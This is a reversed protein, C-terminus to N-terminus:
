LGVSAREVSQELALRYLTTGPLELEDGWTVDLGWEGVVVKSFLALDRLPRLVSFTIIYEALDVTHRKADGWEIEVSHRGAVPRVSSICSKRIILYSREEFFVGWCLRM